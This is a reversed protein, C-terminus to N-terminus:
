FRRALRGIQLRLVHITLTLPRTLSEGVLTGLAIATFAFVVSVLGDLGAPDTLLRKISVLGLVGPVLLWFSPLFTVISPPGKFRSQILNGLPTAALMGFFGSLEAGIFRAALRQVAFAAFLVLIIWALSNRPASFHVFVGMGFVVVGVLSAWLPVVIERPGDLLNDPTYGVLLAGATLGLALLVLQVIGTVLRSSGSVMDGFTLEVLAFALMAGPLFSVLPPVLAYLPDIPLGYKVALFVLVSVMAASVVSLPASLIPRDRNAVKLGGVIMGLIAAAGLNALTPMQVIALGVTLIAHGVVAGFSGFRPKMRVIESLRQLGERPRVRGRRAAAGLRYVHAIQDLRLSQTPGEAMTVHEKEGDHLSILVATPFTVVRSGHMGNASAIRRLYSEVVATQEGSALYAQGLRFMFELLTSTDSNAPPVQM